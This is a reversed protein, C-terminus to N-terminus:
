DSVGAREEREEVAIDLVTIIQFQALFLEGKRASESVTESRM